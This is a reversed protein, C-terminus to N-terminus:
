IDRYLIVQLALESIIAVWPRLLHQNKANPSLTRVQRQERAHVIANRIKRLTDPLKPHWSTEWDKLNWDANVLPSISIGGVFETPKSFIQIRPEIQAWVKKPDVCQLVVSNFKSEDSSREEVLTDLIQRSSNDITSPLDPSLLIRKIARDVEDKLYYFAAYEIIQYSYLFARYPDASLVSSEWLSLLFPDLDNGIISKPFDGYPYRVPLDSKEVVPEGHIMIIPSHRDFHRMYFNLHRAFSVLEDEELEVNRVWFSTVKFTSITGDHNDKRTIRLFRNLNAVNRHNTDSPPKVFRTGGVLLTLRNSSDSFECVYVKGKWRFEFSRQREHSTEHIPAYIFEIDKTDLHWIASFRPPLRLSNLAKMLATAKASVNISITEDGWPNDIIVHGDDNTLASEPNTLGFKKLKRKM